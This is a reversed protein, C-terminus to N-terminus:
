LALAAVELISILIVTPLILLEIMASLSLAANLAASTLPHNFEERTPPTMSVNKLPSHCLGSASLFPRGFLGLGCGFM